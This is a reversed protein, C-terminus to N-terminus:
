EFRTTKSYFGRLGMKIRLYSTINLTAAGGGGNLSHGKTYAASPAYRVYSYDAGVEVRPFEQAWAALGLFLMTGFTISKIISMIKGGDGTSYVLFRSPKRQATVWLRCENM